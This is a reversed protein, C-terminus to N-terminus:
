VASHLADTAALAQLLARNIVARPLDALGCLPTPLVSDVGQLACALRLHAAHPGEGTLLAGIVPSPLPLDAFLHPLSRGIIKDLLSFAGVVFGEDREVPPAGRALALHELFFGRAVATYIYPLAKSHKSAVVLLLVLWKLLRQYGLLSIAQAISAIPQARAFAPSNALTLLMYSLVPEAKFARELAPGDADSQVLRILELVAKQLPQLQGNADAAPEQLPWGVVAHAGAAFAEAAAARSRPDLALVASGCPAAGARAAPLTVYQFLPLRQSPPAQEAALRLALRVGHRQVELLLRLRDPHEAEQQAIELLVNRPARWHALSDDLPLDLPALVILGHPFGTAESARFGNLVSDLLTALPTESLQTAAARLAIRFGVARLDRAVVPAWIPAVVGLDPEPM